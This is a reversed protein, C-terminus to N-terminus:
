PLILKEGNLVDVSEQEIVYKGSVDSIVTVSCNKPSAIYKSPDKYKILTILSRIYAGHSFALINEGKHQKSINELFREGRQMLQQFSEAGYTPIYNARDFFYNHLPHNPEFEEPNAFSEGEHIGFAMEIILPEIIIPKKNENITKAMDLCRILPSSYVVDYQLDKIAEKLNLTQEYGTDNLPINVQGQFRKMENWDTQGHRVIYLRM